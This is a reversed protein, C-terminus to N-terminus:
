YRTFDGQRITIYDAGGMPDSKDQHAVAEVLRVLMTDYGCRDCGVTILREVVGDTIKWNANM